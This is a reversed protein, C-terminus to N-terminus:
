RSARIIHIGTCILFDGRARVGAHPEILRLRLSSVADIGDIADLRKFLDSAHPEVGFDWGHGADNGTLPHLYADFSAACAMRVREPSADEAVVIEADVCVQVYLPGALVLEVGAPARAELYRKVAALLALTPQPAKDTGRPAVIVSVVGGQTQERPDDRSVDCGGRCTAKAVEPSARRALDAYDDQCVARGRHRLRVLSARHLAHDDPADQGGSAWDCNAASAVYPVTTRLQAIALPPQNGHAGGGASYSIRVNNGGAPPIRGRRGDGFRVTGTTRDLTFARTDPASQSLDDVCTWRVWDRPSDTDAERVELRVEGIVPVRATAFAQLPRDTASGLLERTFRLAQVAPVANLVIQRVPPVEKVNMLVRLWLLANQEDLMTDHWPAIDDHPLTVEVFGPHQLGGTKDISDCDRWGTTTRVQWRPADALSSAADRYIARTGHRAMGIYLNLTRGAVQQPMARVGLFLACASLDLPAFPAFAAREGLASLAPRMWSLGNEVIIEAPPMPGAHLSMSLGIRAISPPAEAPMAFAEASARVSYNGSVLRVRLWGEPKGSIAVPAADAPVAISVTGSQTFARTGDDVSVPRWGSASHAEWMVRPAGDRSVPAIPSDDPAADAPNTLEITLVVRAGPTAFANSALYLVDNFRPREGFPYFDRSLDLPMRGFVAADLTAAAMARDASVAIGTVTPGADRQDPLRCTLWGSEVGHLKATDWKPPPADFTITGSTTFGRTTDHSPNLAIFGAASEIGWQMALPKAAPTAIQVDLALAKLDPACFLAHHGVHLARVLPMAHTVLTDGERLGQPSVVASADSVISARADIWVARVAEARLVDLDATTQFVVPQAPEGSGPAAVETYKPVVPTPASASPAAKFALPALASTAPERSAGLMAVFAALHTTPVANMCEALVACDHAFVREIALRLPDDVAPLDNAHVLPALALADCVAADIQDATRARTVFPTQALTV